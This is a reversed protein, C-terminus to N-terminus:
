SFLGVKRGPKAPSTVLYNPTSITWTPPLEYPFLLRGWSAPLSCTHHANPGFHQEKRNQVEVFRSTMVQMSRGNPQYTPQGQGVTGHPWPGAQLSVDVTYAFFSSTKTVSKGGPGAAATM